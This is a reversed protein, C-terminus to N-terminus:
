ESRLAQIPDVRSARWAPYFGSLVSIGVALLIALLITGPTIVPNISSISSSSSSPAGGGFGSGGGFSSAGSRSFGSHTSTATPAATSSSSFGHSLIAPLAYAGGIGVISGLAGGLLGIILAESLFLTLIDRQKFGISKLIGIERTRESVSVMMISLIGVGAVILSIGGISGLLLSISGTISEVTATLSQVSLITASNGFIDNLMTDLSSTSQLNTAKIVLVNYSYKHTLTEAEALPVFISTDPDVFFSTGYDGLVGTPLITATTSGGNSAINTLYLPENPLVESSSAGTPYAISYGVAAQPQGNDAYLGGSAFNLSGLVSSLSSNQIGLITVPSSAGTLTTVNASLRLIPIVSSVNPLSEIEAVQQNTFISGPGRSSMYVTTPGISSLSQSVSASVGSVLSILSVITAVGIIVTLVTLATRFRRKSMGKIGLALIDNIRM